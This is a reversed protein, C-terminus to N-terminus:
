LKYKRLIEEAKKSTEIVRRKRKKMRMIRKM